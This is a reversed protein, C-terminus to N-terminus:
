RSRAGAPAHAEVAGSEAQHIASRTPLTGPRFGSTVTRATPLNSDQAMRVPLALRTVSSPLPGSFRLAKVPRSPELGEGEAPEYSLHDSCGASLRSTPPEVGGPGVMGTRNVTLERRKLHRYSPEIRERPVVRRQRLPGARSGELSFTGPELGPRRVVCTNRRDTPTLPYRV